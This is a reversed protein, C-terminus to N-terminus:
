GAQRRTPGLRSAPRTFLIHFPLIKAVMVPKRVFLQATTAPMFNAVRALDAHLALQTTPEVLDFAVLFFLVAPPIEEIEKVVFALVRSASM